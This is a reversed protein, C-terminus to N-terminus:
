MNECKSRFIQGIGPCLPHDNVKPGTVNQITCRTHARTSPLRPVSAIEQLLDLAHLRRYSDILGRTLYKVLWM